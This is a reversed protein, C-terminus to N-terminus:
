ARVGAPVRIPVLLALGNGTGLLDLPITITQLKGGPSGTAPRPTHKHLEAAGGGGGGSIYM